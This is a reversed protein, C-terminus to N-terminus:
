NCVTKTVLSKLKVNLLKKTLVFVWQHCNLLQALCKTGFLLIVTLVMTDMKLNLLGTMTTLHVVMTVNVMQCFVVLVLLSFRVSNKLLLM